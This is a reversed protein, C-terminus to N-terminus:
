GPPQTQDDAGQGLATAEARHASEPVDHQDPIKMKDATHSGQQNEGKSDVENEALKFRSKRTLGDGMRIVEPIKEAHGQRTQSKDEGPSARPPLKEEGSFAVHIRPDKNEAHDDAGRHGM